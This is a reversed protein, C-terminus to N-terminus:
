RPKSHGTKRPTPSAATPAKARAAAAEGRLELRFSGAVLGDISAAVTYCPGALMSADLAANWRGGGWELPLELAATGGGCPTLTLLAQGSSREVGDVFLRVKVPITRSHNAEFADQGDGVPELWTASAVHPPEVFRVEVTFSAAASNGSADTATCTVTRIGVPFTEGSAPSCGVAPSPDVIDTATPPTYTVAAGGPDGTTVSRDGPMGALVPDTTDVVTIDFSGTTTAGGLDTVSCVVHTSQGVLLVEGAVPVCSPTPDPNDEADTASVGSWDARWGGTTNGEESHSPPLTLTPATNINGVVNMTFSVQTASRSFANPDSANPPTLSRDFIVTYMYGNGPTTPARLTVISRTVGTVSPVPDTPCGGGDVAWPEVIPGISAPTVSVIEGGLPKSGLGSWGIQVTQGLDVHGLGVCTLTFEVEVSVEAGPARNGLPKTGQIGGNLVDGDALLSDAFATGAFALLAALSLASARRLRRGHM